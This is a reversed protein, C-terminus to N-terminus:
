REYIQNGKKEEKLYHNTQISTDFRKGIDKINHKYIDGTKIYVKFSDRDIYCLKAIERYKPKVYDYQFEYM